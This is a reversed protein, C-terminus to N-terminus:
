NLGEEQMQIKALAACRMLWKEADEQTKIWGKAEVAKMGEAILTAILEIQAKTMESDGADRMIASRDLTM